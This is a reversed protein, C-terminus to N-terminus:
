PNAGAEPPADAARLSTVATTVGATTAARTATTAARTATTAARTATTAARTAASASTTTAARTTTTAARTATTAACAAFLLVSAINLTGSWRWVPELGAADGLGVRVLLSVHLLVLPLYLVPHYPLPRRLVAPLIVPAHVFIMSVVFGLFVAHLAADYRPGESVPGAGAWLLGALALWAYGALLGAAAYRPLGNSRITRRAVDFVVLWATVALLALGFLVTGSRPAVTAATATLVLAALAARFWVEPSRRGLFAVQASELREGGITAVVFTVLWPVIEPVTYGALWLFAAAYWAFAGAAQALLAVSRQRLWLARYVVLLAVPAIVMLLRGPYSPGTVLLIVAGLASAAPACLAWARGLAVARELAILTGAFGFVMVPGHVDEVPSPPAAVPVGLLLLAAYLGGLLAVAAGALAPLRHRVAIGSTNM